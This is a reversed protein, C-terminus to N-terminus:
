KRDDREFSESIKGFAEESNTLGSVTVKARIAYGV